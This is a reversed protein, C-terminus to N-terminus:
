CAAPPRQSCRASTMAAPIKFTYRWILFGVGDTSACKSSDCDQWLEDGDSKFRRLMLTKKSSTAWSSSCCCSSYRYSILEQDLVSACIFFLMRPKCKDRYIHMDDRGRTLYKILMEVQDLKTEHTEMKCYNRRLNWVSVVFCLRYTIIRDYIYSGPAPVSFDRFQVDLYRVIRCRIAPTSLALGSFAAGSWVSTNSCLPASYLRLRISISLIRKKRM